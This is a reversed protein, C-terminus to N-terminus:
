SKQQFDKYLSYLVPTFVSAISAKQQIWAVTGRSGESMSLSEEMDGPGGWTDLYKWIIKKWLDRKKMDLMSIRPEWVKNSLDRGGELYLSKDTPEHRGLEAPLPQIHNWIYVHHM